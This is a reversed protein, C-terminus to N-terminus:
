DHSDGKWPESLPCWAVVKDETIRVSSYDGWNHICEYWGELVYYQDDEERYEDCGEDWWDVDSRMTYRDVHYAKCVYRHPKGYIDLHECTVWVKEETKPLATKCPIWQQASPMNDIMEAIDDADQHCPKIREILEIAAARSILDDM